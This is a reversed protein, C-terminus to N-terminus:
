RTNTRKSIWIIAAPSSVQSLTNDSPTFTATLSHRSTVAPKWNCTAIYNPYSGTTSVALCNAIRKGDMFFRAKGPANVTVTLSTLVGKYATGSIAPANLTSSESVNTVRITFSPTSTNGALDTLDLYVLYDNNGDQDALSEFDPSSLFYIRATDTDVVTISFKLFDGASSLSITSSESIEITAAISSINTNEAFNFPSAANTITPASSDPTYRIVILGSGGAGSSKFSAPSVNSM